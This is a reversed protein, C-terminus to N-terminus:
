GVRERRGLIGQPRVLLIIILVVLAGVNKLEPPVWLTSVDLLIGIVLAGVIAGFASGLGGLTVAAFVLLLVRLGMNWSVGETLGLMVGSFGALGAGLIWITSVVREVDIGSASALAPNDAVARSAKGVRSRLLWFVTGAIAIIALIGGIIAKPTESIPGLTWGTQGAFKAYNKTSGGFRFLYVYRLLMGLGISVVLMAILGTGRRRLPRWLVRDQMWGGLAATAIIGLIASIVLPVHLVVNFFYTALAGFTVIEGHAFNTLGTTGFILSLGIAALALTLGFVAGDVLLQLFRGFFDSNVVAAPGIPFGVRNYGVFVYVDTSQRAPDTLGEGKPLSKVDISVAYQGAAPVTIKWSGDAATTATGVFTGAKAKASIKVGPLPKGTEGLVVGKFGVENGAAGAAVGFGLTPFLVLLLGTL